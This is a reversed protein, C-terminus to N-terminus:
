GAPRRRRVGLTALAAALLGADPALPLPGSGSACGCPPTAAPDGTDDAPPPCALVVTPTVNQARAFAAADTTGPGLLHFTWTFADAPATEDLFTLTGRARSYRGAVHVSDTHKVVSWGDALTALGWALPLAVDDAVIAAADIDVPTDGLAPVGGYTAGDWPFAVTPTGEGAAFAVDLRWGATDSTWTLTGGRGSVTPTAEAPPEGREVTDTDAEVDADWDVIADGGAATVRVRDAGADACPGAIADSALAVAAASHDLGYQVETGFPNWGSADSVEGLLLEKWAAEVTDEDAGPISEAALVAARGRVNATRVGNDSETDGWLGSEGMWLGLDHTDDPQWTGDLVAPLTPEDGTEISAVYTGIGVIRSGAAERAELDSVRTATADPDYRFAPGLYCNLGNTAWLEGDNLFSWGVQGGVGTAPLVVTDGARYLPADVTGWLYGALNSPLVAIRFGWEPMRDLMGASFQGEQTFVVDSLPLDNDEFVRRTLEASVEMDRAPFAVWLQDSWHFSVLEVQGADALRRLHDLVDPEREAMVAIMYGQLEIDFTWTPHADLVDLVPALSEVITQDQIAADSADYSDDSFLGDLGGACYQLNFHLLTLTFADAM